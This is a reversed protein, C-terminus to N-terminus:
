LSRPGSHAHLVAGAVGQVARLPLIHLFKPSFQEGQLRGGVTRLRRLLSDAIQGFVQEIRVAVHLHVGQTLEHVHGLSHEGVIQLLHLPDKGPVMEGDLPLRAVADPHLPLLKVLAEADRLQHGPPAPDDGPVVALLQLLYGGANSVRKFFIIKFDVADHQVAQDHMDADGQLPNPAAVVHLNGYVQLIVLLILGEVVLGPQHRPLDHLLQLLNEVDVERLALDSVDGDVEAALRVHLPGQLAAVQHDALLDVRHHQLHEARDVVGELHIEHVIQLQSHGEAAM